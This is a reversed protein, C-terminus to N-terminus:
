LKRISIISYISVVKLEINSMNTQEAKAKASAMVVRGISFFLIWNFTVGIVVPGYFSLFGYPKRVFCRFTHPLAM